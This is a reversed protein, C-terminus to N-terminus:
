ISLYISPDFSLYISLYISISEHVSPSVSQCVSLCDSLRICVSPYMLFQNRQPLSAHKTDFCTQVGSYDRCTKKVIVNTFLVVVTTAQTNGIINSTWLLIIGKVKVTNCHLISWVVFQTIGSKKSADVFLLCWNLVM